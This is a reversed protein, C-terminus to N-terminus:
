IIAQHLGPKIHPKLLDKIEVLKQRIEPTSKPCRMLAEDVVHNMWLLDIRKRSDRLAGLERDVSSEPSSNALGADELTRHPIENHIERSKSVDLIGHKPNFWSFSNDM